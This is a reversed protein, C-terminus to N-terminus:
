TLFLIKFYDTRDSSHDTEVLYGDKVDWKEVLDRDDLHYVVTGDAKYVTTSTGCDNRWTGVILKKLKADNAQAISTMALLILLTTKMLADM